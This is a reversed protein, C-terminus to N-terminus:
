RTSDGYRERWPQFKEGCIKKLREDVKEKTYIYEPDGQKDMVMMRAMENTYKKIANAFAECSGPGMQFVDSAALFAADVVMQTVTHVEKELRKDHELQKRADMRRLLASPKPM